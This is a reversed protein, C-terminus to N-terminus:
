AAPQTSPAALQSHLYEIARNLYPDEFEAADLGSSGTETTPQSRDDGGGNPRPDGTQEGPPQAPNQAAKGATKEASQDDNHRARLRSLYRQRRAVVLETYQEDTLDIEYGPSPKVGWDDDQQSRSGRHINRLSPRWYSSTTLKLASQGAEIPIVNQVTGKGWTREGIIKARQHDQLCAAVIESASASYRDVLIAVPMRFRTAQPHATYLGNRTINGYRDRTTVIQGEDVFLDAVDVAADLLGGANGRLDLILAKIPPDTGTVADVLDRATKEGFTTLQVYGITPEDELAFQWRGDPGRADGVVSEVKIVAREIPINEATESGLPLMRLQVISGPEGRMVQVADELSMGETSRGDIALITDGAKIGARFAPTGFLPSLVTLRNTEQDLLVEIGVGGFQQTLIAEQLEQLDAPSIYDSYQDLGAFMGKMAGEFLTRRDVPEVYRDEVHAMAEALVSTYRSYRAKQYCV